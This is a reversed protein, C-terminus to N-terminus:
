RDSGSESRASDFCLLILANESKSPFSRSDGSCATPFDDTTEWHGMNMWKSRLQLNLMTSDSDEYLESKRKFCLKWIPPLLWSLVVGTLVYLLKDLSDMSSAFNLFYLLLFPSLNEFHHYNLM